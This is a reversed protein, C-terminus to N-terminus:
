GDIFTNEKTQANVGMREETTYVHARSIETAFCFILCM